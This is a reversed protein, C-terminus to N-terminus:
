SRRLLVFPQYANSCVVVDEELYPLLLHQLASRGLADACAEKKIKM